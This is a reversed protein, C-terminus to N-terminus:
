RPRRRPLTSLDVGHRQLHKRLGVDSVGIEAAVQGATRTQLRQVLETAEPWVVAPRPQAAFLNGAEDTGAEDTGASPSALVSPGVPGRRRGQERLVRARIAPDTNEQVVRLLEADTLKPLVDGQYRRDVRGVMWAKTRTGALTPHNLISSRPMGSPTVALEALADRSRPGLAPQTEWVLYLAPESGFGEILRVLEDDTQVLGERLLRLGAQRGHWADWDGFRPLLMETLESRGRPSQGREFLQWLEQTGMESILTRPVRSAHRRTVRGADVRARFDPHQQYGPWDTMEGWSVEIWAARAAEQDRCLPEAARQRRTGRSVVPEKRDALAHWFDSSRVTDTNALARIIAPGLRPHRALYCCTGDAVPHATVEDGRTGAHVADVVAETLTEHHRGRRYNRLALDFLAQGGPTGLDLRGEGLAQIADRHFALSLGGASAQVGEVIAMMQDSTMGAKGMFSVAARDSVQCAAAIANPSWAATPTDDVLWAGPSYPGYWEYTQLASWMSGIHQVYADLLDPRSLSGRETVGNRKGDPFTAAWHAEMQREAEERNPLSAAYRENPSPREEAGALSTQNQAPSHAARSDM